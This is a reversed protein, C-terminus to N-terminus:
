AKNKRERIEGFVEADSATQMGLNKRIDASHPRLFPNTELEQALTTPVTPKEDKRLEAVIKARDRLQRNDPDIVLAFAANSATYEHGCYITTEAPLRMLKQLSQWMMEHSGEFVRGCGLAFLTDGVFVTQADKFWYSIHGLTHGPTDIIAVDHGAFQLADGEKVTRDLGDIRQAEASPGVVDCGTERKLEGIGATHDGHHHTIFIESLSWGKHDLAARIPAADPADIAVTKQTRRDHVLCGYNDKLCPFLHFELDSM